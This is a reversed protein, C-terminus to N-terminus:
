ERFADEVGIEDRRLPGMFAGLELIVEKLIKVQETRYILAAKAGATLPSDLLESNWRTIGLLTTEAQQLLADITGVWIRKKDDVGDSPVTDKSYALMITYISHALEPPIGRLCNLKPIGYTNPYGSTYHSTGRIYFIAEQPDWTRSRWHSPVRERLKHHIEPSVRGLRFAVQDYPNDPLCFGYSM